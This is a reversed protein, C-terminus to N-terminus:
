QETALWSAVAYSLLAGALVASGIAIDDQRQISAAQAQLTSSRASRESGSTAANEGRRRRRGALSESRASRM